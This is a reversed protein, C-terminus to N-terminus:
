RAPPRDRKLTRAPQGVAVLRALVVIRRASSYLPHCASLVLRDHGVRRLVDVAGPDVIRTGEVAYRFSAYPLAVTVADGRRLGDLHRFPAGHTTRHGAIAASGPRGPLPTGDIFGPARRLLDPRSGLVVAVDLGIAPARLGAIAQGPRARDGLARAAAAAHRRDVRTAMAARPPTPRSVPGLERKLRRQDAGARVASVPEKWVLTLAADGLLALGAVILAASALRRM